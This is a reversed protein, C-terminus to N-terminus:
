PVLEIEYSAAGYSVSSMAGVDFGVRGLAASTEFPYCWDGSFVAQGTVSLNPATGLSPLRAVRIVATWAAGGNNCVLWRLKGSTTGFAAQAVVSVDLYHPTGRQLLPTSGTRSIGQPIGKSTQLAATAPDVVAGNSGIQRVTKGDVEWGRVTPIAVPNPTRTPTATPTVTPTPSTTRTPTTTPSFTHTQSSTLTASPTPTRTPTPTFTPTPTPTLTAAGAMGAVSLLLLLLKKM